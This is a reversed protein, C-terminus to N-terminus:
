SYHYRTARTVLRLRLPSSSASGPLVSSSGAIGEFHVICGLELTYNNPDQDTKCVSLYVHKVGRTTAAEVVEVLRSEPATLSM